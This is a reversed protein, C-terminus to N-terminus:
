GVCLDKCDAGFRASYSCCRLGFPCCTPGCPERGFSCNMLPRGPPPTPRPTVPFFPGTSPPFSPCKCPTLETTCDALQTESFCRGSVPDLLCTGHTVRCAGLAPTVQALGTQIDVTGAWGAERHYHGSTKYVSAEATFGPMNM